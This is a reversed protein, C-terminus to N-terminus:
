NLKMDMIRGYNQFIMRDFQIGSLKLPRCVKSLLEREVTDYIKPKSALGKPLKIGVKKKLVNQIRIDLAIADTILGKEMLNDRASKSKIFKFLKMFYKIKRKTANPGKFEALRKFLGKPGGKINNLVRFNHSIAQTKKCRKFSKSVYRTGVARLVYNIEKELQIKDRFNSLRNFAVLKKLKPDEHFKDASSAGGVVMVQGILDLWIRDNSKNKWNGPSPIRTKKLFMRKIKRLNKIHDKTIKM